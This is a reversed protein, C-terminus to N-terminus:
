PHEMGGLELEDLNAWVQPREGREIEHIQEIIAATLPAPVGRERGLRVVPGLQADVETVRKRVALDRWIGSHTKASARNFTVLDDLSADTRADTAAPAFAEPDFGDFGQLTVGQALAVSVVERGIARMLPRVKGADLVDAISDDTLATAFLLAAYALKGWLYGFINDTLVANPEFIELLHHIAKVRPTRQGDLEGVVVAGRNGRHVVGPELYDAGFNVFAGVTREAGVVEAIEMECLGNQISVVAGDGALHPALQAAAGKTHHAKVCLFVTKFTGLLDDPGVAQAPVTANMVPGTIRLGHTNMAEVHDRARDVFLVRHGAQVLAAGISSGMAGAGWILLRDAGNGGAADTGAGASVDM